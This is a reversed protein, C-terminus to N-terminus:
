NYDVPKEGIVVPLEIQKGARIVQLTVKTGPTTEAIRDMLM